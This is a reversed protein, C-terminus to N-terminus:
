SARRNEYHQKNELARFIYCYYTELERLHEPNNKKKKLRNIRARVDLFLNKLETTSLAGLQDSSLIRMNEENNHM